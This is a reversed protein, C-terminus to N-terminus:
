KHKSILIDRHEHRRRQKDNHYTQNKHKRKSANVSNPAKIRVSNKDNDEALHCKEFVSDTNFTEAQHCMFDIACSSIGQTSLATCQDTMISNLPAVVLICYKTNTLPIGNKLSMVFPVLQYVLSKGFGAPLVALVDQGSMVAELCLYQEERLAKNFGIHAKAEDILQRDEM